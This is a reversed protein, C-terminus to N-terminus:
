PALITFQDAIGGNIDKFYADARRPNGGVNFRIYTDTTGSYSNVGQQLSATAAVAESASSIVEGADESGCAALAAGAGLGVLLTGLPLM